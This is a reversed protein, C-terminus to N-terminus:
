VHTARGFRKAGGAGIPLEDDHRNSSGVVDGHGARTKGHGHGFWNAGSLRTFHVHNDHPAGQIAAIKPM